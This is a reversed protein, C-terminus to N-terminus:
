LETLRGYEVDGPSLLAIGDSEVWAHADFTPTFAVGIVVKAEIGRRALMRTLVLSRVLCRSDAPLIGLTRGVVRGLRVGFRLRDVGEYPMPLDPHSRRLEEVTAPVGRRRLLVRVRVYTSVIESALSLKRSVPFERWVEDQATSM